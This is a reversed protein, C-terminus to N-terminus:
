ALQCYSPKLGGIRVTDLTKGLRPGQERIAGRWVESLERVVVFGHIEGLWTQRSEDRTTRSKTDEICILLLVSDERRM